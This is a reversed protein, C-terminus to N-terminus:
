SPAGGTIPLNAGNIYGAADSLLFLIAPAVDEPHANRRLPHKDANMEVVVRPVDRLFATEVMGPSVANVQVNKSGYEVALARMLGLTAHKATVYDALGAPPHGLTYSSLVFVVRGRRQKAMGPLLRALLIAPARVQVELHTAFEAWSKKHFRETAPPPALAIVIGNPADCGVTSLERAVDAAFKEVGVETALDAQIAVLKAHQLEQSVTDLRARSNRYQALVTLGPRDLGRIAAIAIESSGGVFLVVAEGAGETM